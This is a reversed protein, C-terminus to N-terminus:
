GVRDLPKTGLLAANFWDMAPEPSLDWDSLVLAGDVIEWAADGALQGLGDGCDWDAPKTTATLVVRDETVEYTGPCSDESEVGVLDYEGAEFTLQLTGANIEADSRASPNDDGGLAEYLEDATWTVTWTGELPHSEVTAGPSPAACGSIPMLVALGIVAAATRMTANM